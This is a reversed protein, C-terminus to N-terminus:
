TGRRILNALASSQFITDLHDVSMPAQSLVSGQPLRERVEQEERPGGGSCGGVISQVMHPQVVLPQVKHSQVARYQVM